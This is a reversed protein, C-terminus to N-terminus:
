SSDYDPSIVALEDFIEGAKEYIKQAMYTEGVGFQAETAEKTDKYQNIVSLYENRAIDYNGAKNYNQALLLQIQAKESPSFQNSEGNKVLWSRLIDEARDHNEQGGGILHTNAAFLVVDVPLEHRHKDFLAENKYLRTCLKDGLLHLGIQM